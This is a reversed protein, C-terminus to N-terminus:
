FQILRIINIETPMEVFADVEVRYRVGIIM